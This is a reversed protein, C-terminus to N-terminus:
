AYGSQSDWLLTGNEATINIHINVREGPSKTINLEVPNKPTIGTLKEAGTFDSGYEREIQYEISYNATGEGTPVVRFIINEDSVLAEEFFLSKSENEIIERAAPSDKKGSLDNGSSQDTRSEPNLDAPFLFLAALLIAVIAVGSIILIAASTKTYKNVSNTPNTANVSKASKASKATKESKVATGDKRTNVPNKRNNVPYKTNGNKGANAPNGSKGSKKGSTM